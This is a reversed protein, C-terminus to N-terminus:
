DSRNLRITKNIIHDVSKKRIGQLTKDNRIPNVEM